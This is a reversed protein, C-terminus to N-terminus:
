RTFLVMYATNSLNHRMHFTFGVSEASRRCDQLSVNRGGGNPQGEVNEVNPEIIALWGGNKLCRSVDKLVEEPSDSEQFLFAALAGDLSNDDLKLKSIDEVHRVRVNTLRNEKLKRRAETLDKKITDFATVKGRYVCKGLPISLAGVSCGVDAVEHYPSVPLLSMVQYVDLITRDRTFVKKLNRNNSTAM